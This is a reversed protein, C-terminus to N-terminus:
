SDSDLPFRPGQKDNLQESQQEISNCGLHRIDSPYYLHEKSYAGYKTLKPVSKSVFPFSQQENMHWHLVNMKDYSLGDLIREIAEM